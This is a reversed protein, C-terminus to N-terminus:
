RFYIQIEVRERDSTWEKRTGLYSFVRSDDKWICKSETIGDEIARVLKSLDPKVAHNSPASAKVTGANRGTGIHYKPRNFYFQASLICPRNDVESGPYALMAAMKVHEM